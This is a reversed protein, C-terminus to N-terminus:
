ATRAQKRASAIVPDAHPLPAAGDEDFVEVVVDRGLGLGEIVRPVEQASLTKALRVSGWRTPWSNM